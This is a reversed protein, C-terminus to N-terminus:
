FHTREIRNIWGKYFRRKRPYKRIQDVYHCYRAYKYYEALTYLLGYGEIVKSRPKFNNIANLTIPGVIGDAKIEMIKQVMRIALRKNSNVGHDFIHLVLEQDRIGELNMPVWFYKHYVIKAQDITIDPIDVGFMAQVIGRFYRAAIGYKTGVLEGTCNPGTWNGYDDPDKQFGGENQLIVDIIKDFLTM